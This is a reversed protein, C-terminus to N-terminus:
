VTNRVLLEPTVKKGTLVFSLEMCSPYRYWCNSFQFYFLFFVCLRGARAQLEIRVMADIRNFIDFRTLSYVAMPTTAVVTINYKMNKPHWFLRLYFCFVCGHM